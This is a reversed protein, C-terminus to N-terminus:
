NVGEQKKWNHPLLEDLQGIPHQPIRQLVDTLWERPNAGASRCCAFFSYMMAANGAAKDSGAFLYNKRGLALPRIANEIGNNDIEVRGDHLYISLKALQDKAYSMAKGMLSKPRQLYLQEDVWQQLESFIPSAEQQRYGLRQAHSCGREACQREIAYLRKITSLAHAALDPSEKQADFFKRRIHAMCAALRIPLESGVRSEALTKYATYGDCQLIGKFGALVKKPAYAGRGRRYDFLVTGAQPDRYAWIYGKHTKGKIDSSQVKITTEDAQLYDTDLVSEALREGLPELLTCCAAFWGNLTSKSLQWGFDRKFREIQRYFPLHDIYKSVLLYALLGAEAIAKPIPRSPAEGMAIAQQGASPNRRAYKRRIYRRKLLIGPRYDVTETIEEGILEMDSTDECPEIVVEEVPINESLPARGPHKKKKRTYSVEETAEPTAEPQAEQGFLSLQEAPLAPIFRERRPGFVLKKLQELEHRLATNEAKLAKNESIAEKIGM